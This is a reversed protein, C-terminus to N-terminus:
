GASAFPSATFERLLHAPDDYVALAGGLAPADWGGCRLAICGVGARRAAEVDYPTDGLMIAEGPTLKGKSLAARVIDPDPKSRDADDSSTKQTLLDDLGVQALMAELEEEKASTAVVLRLGADRLRRVLEKAGPTTRLRPVYRERFVAARRESFAKGEESDADVGLLRPLLKDGGMGILPRVTAAPIDRGFERLTEHWSDAHADNSDILTGDIDLLVGRLPSSAAM